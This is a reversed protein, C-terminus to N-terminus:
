HPNNAFFNESETFFIPFGGTFVPTFDFGLLVEWHRLSGSLRHKKWVQKGLWGGGQKRVLLGAGIATRGPGPRPVPIPGAPRASQGWRLAVVPTTDEFVSRVPEVAQVHRLFM